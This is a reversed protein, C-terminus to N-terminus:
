HTYESIARDVLNTITESGFVYGIPVVTMWVPATRVLVQGGLFGFVPYEVWEKWTTKREYSADALCATSFVLGFIGFPEKMGRVFREYARDMTKLKEFMKRGTGLNDSSVKFLQSM